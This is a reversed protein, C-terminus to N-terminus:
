AVDPRGQGMAHLCRFLHWGPADVRLLARGTQTPCGADSDVLLEAAVISSRKIDFERILMPYQCSQPNESVLDNLYPEIYCSLKAASLNQAIMSLTKMTVSPREMTM